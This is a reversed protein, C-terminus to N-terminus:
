NGIALVIVAQNHFYTRGRYNLSRLPAQEGYTCIGIIPTNQGFGKQIIEVEKNIHRGLLRFRSASDFVLVLNVKHNLFIKKVEGIAQHTAALCSEKTGIMLRIQANQPIDGQFVISGDDQVSSINRLLYEEEGPLYIGIPYLISIRKLDKKLEQISKAFYEEYLKVAPLRDIKQVLNGSSQTVLRPKGLPKWGHKIGLGFHLKGGWIIGCAADSLVEQNFYLYTKKFALNDSASAGALPFSSGLKEQLGYLFASNDRILGDSFIVGFDRRINSFGYLLKEGFERGADAIAKSSIERVCDTNFYAGEPLGLLVVALAQKYIGQNSIIAVSSCGVIPVEGLFGSITKLVTTHAFEVTSLVIALSIKATGISTKAQRIAIQAAQLSDKETSLGIGLHIAM